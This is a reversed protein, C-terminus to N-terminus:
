AQVKALRLAMFPAMLRVGPVEFVRTIGLRYFPGSGVELCALGHRGALVRSVESFFDV